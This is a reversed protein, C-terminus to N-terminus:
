AARGRRLAYRAAVALFAGGGGLSMVWLLAPPGLLAGGATTLLLWAGLGFQAPERWLTGGFLYMVGVFLGSSAPWLLDAVAPGTATTVVATNVATLALFGLVWSWGYLVATRAGPGSLGRGVRVSHLLTTLGAGTLLVALVAGPLADPVSLLPERGGTAAALGFGALWTLGWVGYLLRADVGVARRVLRQQDEILALRAAADFREGEHVDDM